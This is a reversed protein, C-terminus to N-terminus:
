HNIKKGLRARLEDHLLIREDSLVYLEFTNLSNFKSVFRLINDVPLVGDPTISIKRMPVAQVLRM